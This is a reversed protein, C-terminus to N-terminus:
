WDSRSSGDAYVTSIPEYGTATKKDVTGGGISAAYEKAQKLTRIGRRRVKDKLLEVVQFSGILAKSRAKGAGAPKHAHKAPAHAPHYHKSPKGTSHHSVPTGTIPKKCHHCTVGPRTAAAARGPLAKTVSMQGRKWADRASSKVWVKGGGRLSVETGRFPSTDVVQGFYTRGESFKGASDKHFDHVHVQDGVKMVPGKVKKWHLIGNKDAESRWRKGDHGTKIEGPHDGAHATPSPRELRAMQTKTKAM